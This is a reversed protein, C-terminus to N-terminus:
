QQRSQVGSYAICHYNGTLESCSHVRSAKCNRKKGIDIRLVISHLSQDGHEEAFGKATDLCCVKFALVSFLVSLGRARFVSILCVTLRKHPFFYKRQRLLQLRHPRQHGLGQHVEINETYGGGRRGRVSLGRGKRLVCLSKDDMLPCLKGDGGEGMIIVVVVVVTNMFWALFLQGMTAVNYSVNRRYLVNVSKTMCGTMDLHWTTIVVVKKISFLLQEKLHAFSNIVTAATDVSLPETSKGIDLVVHINRVHVVLVTNNLVAM